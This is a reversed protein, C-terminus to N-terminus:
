KCNFGYLILSKSMKRRSIRMMQNRDFSRLLLYVCLLGAYKCVAFFDGNRACMSFCMTFMFCRYFLVSFFFFFFFSLRKRARMCRKSHISFYTGYAIAYMTHFTSCWGGRMFRNPLCNITYMCQQYTGTSSSSNSCDNDITSPWGFNAFSPIFSLCPCRKEISGCFNAISGM